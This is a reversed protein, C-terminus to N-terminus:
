SAGSKMVNKGSYTMDKTLTRQTEIVALLQTLGSAISHLKTDSLTRLGSILLDNAADPSNKVMEMGEDSITIQVIRRDNISRIRQVYGKIELGDLMRVVTSSNLHMRRALASVTMSSEPEDSLVKLAWLQSSSLGADCAMNRANKNVLHFLRKLNNVTEEAVLVSSRKSM